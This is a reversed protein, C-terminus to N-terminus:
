LAEKLKKIFVKKFVAVAEAGNEHWTTLFVPRPPIGKAGKWGTRTTGKEQYIMVPDDSGISAGLPRMRIGVSDRLTGDRLLPENEPYGHRARDQKTAPALEEWGKQYFGFKEKAAEQVYSAAALLGEDIAIKLRGTELLNKQLFRDFEGYNKFNRGM